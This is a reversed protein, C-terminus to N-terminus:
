GWCVLVSCVLFWLFFFVILHVCQLSFSNPILKVLDTCVEGPSVGVCIRDVAPIITGTYTQWPLILILHIFRMIKILSSSSSMHRVKSLDRIRLIDNTNESQHIRQREQAVDTDEDLIHPKPCDPIRFFLLIVFPLCMQFVHCRHEDRNCKGTIGFSAISSSFTLFSTSFDRLLWAFCTGELLTGTTPTQATTRVQVFVVHFFFFLKFLWICM